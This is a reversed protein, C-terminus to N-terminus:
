ARGKTAKFDAAVQAILKIRITAMQLQERGGFKEAEAQYRELLGDIDLGLGARVTLALLVLESDVKLGEHADGLLCSTATLEFAIGRFLFDAVEDDRHPSLLVKARGVEGPPPKSFVYSEISAFDAHAMKSLESM